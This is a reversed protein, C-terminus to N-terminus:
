FYLDRKCFKNEKIPSKQLIYERKYPEKAFFDIRLVYMYTYSIYTNWYLAYIDYVHLDIKCIDQSCVYSCVYVDYVHISINCLIPRKQLIYERKYPEKAFFDVKCTDQSCIHINEPLIEVYINYVHISINCVSILPIYKNRFFDSFICTNWICIHFFYMCQDMNYIHKNLTYVFSFLMYTRLVRIYM